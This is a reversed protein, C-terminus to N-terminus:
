KKRRGTLRDLLSPRLLSRPLAGDLRALRERADAHQPDIELVRRYHQRARWLLKMKELAQAYDFHAAVDYPDIQIAIEFQELAERRYEPVRILTNALMVRYACSDPVIEIARRLWLISGAYNGVKLCTRASEIFQEVGGEAAPRRSAQRMGGRHELHMDYQNKAGDDSLTKYALNLLDMLTELQPTMEPRDMNHDPHFRRALQYFRRKVEARPTEFQVELLQYYTGTTGMRLLRDVEAAFSAPDERLDVGFRTWDEPVEDLQWVDQPTEFEVGVQYLGSLRPSKKLWVVRARVAEPLSIAGEGLPGIELAIRANKRPRFRSFYKCGHCNFCVAATEERQIKGKADTSTVAMPVQRVIRTSRRRPGKAQVAPVQNRM